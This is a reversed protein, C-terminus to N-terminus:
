FPQGISILIQFGRDSVRRDLPFAIDARIPGIPTFYRAGGGVGVFFEENFNPLASPSVSGADAFGAIQIKDTVRIRAEIAADILSRGGIPDNEADLPGAEQFGYGRVSGGGGAYFRKNRPLNNLSSSFTAGFSARGALTFLGGKGFHIRSRATFKSQTFSDVGTYPTVSWRAQFGRTPDLLDNESNWFVSIPASIFYNREEMGDARVNSTELGLGARTELRNDLWKKALGGRIAVSRADFADTTENSFKFNAFTLGPLGPLPKNANFNISQELQSARMEINLTEGQGLINRNQFFLRGGPGKSTSYSLGTGITRPKREELTVIIPAVGTKDPAGPAVDITSFLGTKALRDRYAAMTSREYEDGVEWTKLKRIFNENTKIAGNVVPEGFNAKPGSAYVFVATATGAEIDAIARRGIIEAAPYGSEWLHSLFQIQYDRLDAGAASQNPVINADGLSAPRNPQDDQYIIEYDEITFAPGSKILFSVHPKVGDDGRTVELSVEGAYYGASKLAEAFAKGDRQAARRLAANTPYTRAGKEVESIQKLTDQLTDPAGVYSTTYGSEADARGTSLGLVVCFIAITVFLHPRISL